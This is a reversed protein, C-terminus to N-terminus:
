ESTVRRGGTEVQALWRRLLEPFAALSASPCHALDEFVVLDCECRLCEHLQLVEALPAERDADGAVFLTPAQVLPAFNIADFYTLASLISDRSRADASVKRVTKRVAPCSSVTGDALRHYAPRPQHAIVFAVREPMLAAVALAITAGFGDGVLGVRAARVSPDTRVLDVAQCGALIARRLSCARRDPLGSLYWEALSAEGDRWRLYLYSRDNPLASHVAAGEDEYIFIIPTASADKGGPCYYAEASLTTTVDFSVWGPRRGGLASPALAVTASLSREWFQAFDDPCRRPAGGAGALHLLAVIACMAVRLKIQQAM